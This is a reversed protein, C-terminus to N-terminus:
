KAKKSPAKSSGSGCIILMCLTLLLDLLISVIAVTVFIYGYAHILNVVNDDGSFDKAKLYMFFLGAILCVLDVALFKIFLVIMAKKYIPHASLKKSTAQFHKVM